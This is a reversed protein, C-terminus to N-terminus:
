AQHTPSYPKMRAQLREWCPCPLALSLVSSISPIFFLSDCFGASTLKTPYFIFYFQSTFPLLFKLNCKPPKKEASVHYPKFCILIM